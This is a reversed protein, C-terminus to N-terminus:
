GKRHLKGPTYDELHKLVIQRIKEANSELTGLTLRSQLELEKSELM